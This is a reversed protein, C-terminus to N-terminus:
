SGDPDTPPPRWLVIPRGRLALVTATGCVGTLSERGLIFKPVQCRSRACPKAGPPTSTSTQTKAPCSAASRSRPREPARYILHDILM